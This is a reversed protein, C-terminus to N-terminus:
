SESEMQFSNSNGKAKILRNSIIRAILTWVVSYLLSFVFMLPLLIYSTFANSLDGFVTIKIVHILMLIGFFLAAASFLACLFGKRYSLGVVLGLVGTACLFLFAEHPSIFLLVTTSVLLTLVGSQPILMTVILIPLTSLPSILMGIAPFFIPAAQFAICLSSFIGAFAIKKQM